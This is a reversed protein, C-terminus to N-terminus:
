MNDQTYPLVGTARTLSIGESAFWFGGYRWFVVGGDRWGVSVGSSALLTEEKWDSFCDWPWGGEGVNDQTYPLVGTARTLGIGESASWFGGCRWFVVGWGALWREGWKDDKASVGDTM